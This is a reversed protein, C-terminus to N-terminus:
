ARSITSVFLREFQQDKRAERDKAGFHLTYYGRYCYILYCVINEMAFIQAKQPM